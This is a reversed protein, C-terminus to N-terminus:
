TVDFTLICTFQVHKLFRAFVQGFITVQLCKEVQGQPTQVYRWPQIYSLWTELLFKFSADLPWHGISHRFFHFMVDTHIHEGFIQIKLSSPLYM